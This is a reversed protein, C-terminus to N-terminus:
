FLSPQQQPIDEPFDIINQVVRLQHSYKGTELNNIGAHDIFDIRVRGSAHIIRGADLIIGVHIIEGEENDFFALDGAQAENVFNIATGIEVQQRSDRPINIGCIHYVIQAFGSCDIGFPTRGGWLYPTNLYSRAIKIIRERVSLADNFEPKHHFRFHTRFLKFAFKKKYNPITSGAVIVQSGKEKSIIYRTLDNVVFAKKNKLTNLYHSSIQECLAADIWGVYNDHILKIRLWNRESALIEFHEGFLVQSIMESQEAPELRLPVISLTTIGYKM